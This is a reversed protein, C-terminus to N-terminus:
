LMGGFIISCFSELLIFQAKEFDKNPNSRMAMGSM